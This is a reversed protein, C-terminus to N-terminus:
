CPASATRAEVRHLEIVSPQSDPLLQDYRTKLELKAAFAGFVATVLAVALLPVWPRRIQLDSLREVLQKFM